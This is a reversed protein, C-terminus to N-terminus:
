GVTEYNGEYKQEPYVGRVQALDEIHVPSRDEARDFRRVAYAWSEHNPWVLDPLEDLQDRRMLRVEPVDIGARGALRMMVFENRPVEAYSRNPLKVIWDGGQGYAPLTLRDGQALMSFKLAVGALSFRLEPRGGRYPSASESGTWSAEDVDRPGAASEDAVVRVAGPLDHGVQALLEMERKASVGRDVAIWERLVGEPLLNSFWQPLRLSAAYRDTLNQEFALGLIPRSGSRLYQEIFTFRTYDGRQDLTGV